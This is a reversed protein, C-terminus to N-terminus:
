PLFNAGARGLVRDDRARERVPRHADGRFLVLSEFDEYVVDMNQRFFASVEPNNQREHSSPIVVYWVRRNRAFLDRLGDLSSITVTGDYPNLPLAGHDDLTVSRRLTTLPTFDRSWDPRDRGTLHHSLVPHSYLVVDGERVRGRLFAAPGELDPFERVGPRYGEAVFDPLEDLRVTRGSGLALATLAAAAGLGGAYARWAPPVHPHRFPRVLGRVAAVVAASGLLALLPTLHFAYRPASVSLLFSLSLCGGLYSLLLFRTPRRFGRHVTLLVSGALGLLPLLTDRTWSAPGLYYWPRFLQNEWMPTPKLSSLSVAYRLFQTQQLDRHCRQLLVVVAIVALAAWLARGALLAGPRRRWHVLAALALGPALLGAGEWTLYAAVFSGATLWLARRDLRGPRRVTLWLAYVTLLTLFQLQAFYRGFCSMGVCTPGVACVAAALLGAATGYLRRGCVFVLLVTLAGWCVAPFRVIYRDDEFFLAAAATSLYLLESTDTYKAPLDVGPPVVQSPFGHRLTGQTLRYHDVEDWHFPEAELDRLRLLFALVAIGVAAAWPGWRRLAAVWAARPGAACERMGSVAALLRWQALVSAVALAVWEGRYVDQRLVGPDYTALVAAAIGLTPLALAFYAAPVPGSPPPLNRSAFRCALFALLGVGAMVGLQGATRRLVVPTPLSVEGSKHRVVWPAVGLDGAVVRCPEWGDGAVPLWERGPRTLWDADTGVRTRGGARDEVELDALLRPPGGAGTLLLVLENRGPRVVPTIDYGRGTPEPPRDTGLAPEQTDVLVGNVALRYDAPTTLRLWAQRPIDGVEFDRRFAVSRKGWDASMIWRGVAAATVAAPPLDVVARASATVARAAPWHRDDFGATLWWGAGREFTMGCRWGGDARIPHDGDALTYAGQVRVVPPGGDSARKASVAIANPGAQLYPTLDAVVGVPVGDLQRGAVFRGNVYLRVRDRTVVEVWARRPRQPLHFERRLYLQRAQPDPGALAPGDGGVVYEPPLPPGAVAHWTLHGVSAAFGAVLVWSLPSPAM